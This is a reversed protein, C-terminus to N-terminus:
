VTSIYVTNVPERENMPIGVVFVLRDGTNVMKHSKLVMNAHYIAVNIDVDNAVEFTTVGRILSLQRMYQKDSSFAFIPSSPRYSAIRM